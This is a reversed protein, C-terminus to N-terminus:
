DGSLVRSVLGVEGRVRALISEVSEAERGQALLARRERLLEKLRAAAATEKKCDGSCAIKLIM